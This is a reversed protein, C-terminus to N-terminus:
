SLRLNQLLDRIGSEPDTLYDFNGELGEVYPDVTNLYSPSGALENASVFDSDSSVSGTNFVDAVKQVAEAVGSGAQTVANTVSGTSLKIDPININLDPFELTNKPLDPLELTVALQDSITRRWDDWKALEKSGQELTAKAFTGAKELVNKIDEPLSPLEINIGLNSSINPWNSTNLISLDGGKKVYDVLSKGIVTPVDVGQSLAVSANLGANGLAKQNTNTAGLNELITDGYRNRLAEVPDKGAFIDAGLRLITENNDILNVVGLGFTDKVFETGLESLNFLKDAEPSVLSILSQLPDAGDVVAAAASIVSKEFGNVFKAGALGAGILELPLGGRVGSFDSWTANTKGTLKNVYAKALETPESDADIAQWEAELKAREELQQEDEIWRSVSNTNPNRFTFQMSYTGDIGRMATSNFTNGNTPNIAFTSALANGTLGGIAGPSVGFGAMAGFAGAVRGFLTNAFANGINSAVTMATPQSSVDERVLGDSGTIPTIGEKKFYDTTIQNVLAKATESETTSDVSIVRGDDDVVSGKEASSLVDFSAAIKDIEDDTNYVDKTNKILMGPQENVTLPERESIVSSFNNPLLAFTQGNEVTEAPYSGGPYYVRTLNGGINKDEFPQTRDINFNETNGTTPNYRREQQVGTTGFTNFNQLQQEVTSSPLNYASAIEEPRIGADVAAKAIEDPTANLNSTVWDTINTQRQTAAEDELDTYYNPFYADFEYDLSVDKPISSKSIDGNSLNKDGSSIKDGSRFSAM